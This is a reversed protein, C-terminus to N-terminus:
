STIGLGELELLGGPGKDSWRETAEKYSMLSPGELKSTQGDEM